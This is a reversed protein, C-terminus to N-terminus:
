TTGPAPGACADVLMLPGMLSLWLFLAHVRTVGALDPLGDALDVPRGPHPAAPCGASLKAAFLTDQRAGPTHTAAHIRRRGNWRNM